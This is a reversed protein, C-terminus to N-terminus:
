TKLYSAVTEPINTGAASLVIPLNIHKSRQVLKETQRATTTNRFSGRTNDKNNDISNLKHGHAREPPKQVHLSLSFSLSLLCVYTNETSGMGEATQACMLQTQLTM